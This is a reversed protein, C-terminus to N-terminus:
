AEGPAAKRQRRCPIAVVDVECSPFLERAALLAQAHSEAHMVMCTTGSPGSRSGTNVQLRCLFAM